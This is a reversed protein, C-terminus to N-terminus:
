CQAGAWIAFLFASLSVAFQSAEIAERVQNKETRKNRKTLDTAPSCDCFAAAKDIALWGKSETQVLSEKRPRGRKAQNVNNM